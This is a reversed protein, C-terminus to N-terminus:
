GVDISPMSPQCPTFGCPRILYIGDTDPNTLRSPGARDADTAPQSHRSLFDANGNAPDNRYELTYTYASLFM